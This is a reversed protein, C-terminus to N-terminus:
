DVDKQSWFEHRQSGETTAMLFWLGIWRLFEGYTLHAKEGLMKNTAPLLTEQIYEKPIFAEFYDLLDLEIEDRSNFKRDKMRPKRNDYGGARRPCITPSGWEKMISGPSAEGRRQVNEPLPENNDDVAIGQNRLAEVDEEVLPQGEASRQIAEVLEPPAPPEDDDQEAVASPASSAEEAEKDFFDLHSGEETIKFWKQVCYIPQDFDHHALELCTQMKKNVLRQIRSCVMAGEIRENAPANPKKSVIYPRSHLKNVLV